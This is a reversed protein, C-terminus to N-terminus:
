YCMPLHAVRMLDPHHNSEVRLLWFRWLGLSNPSLVVFTSQTPEVGVIAAMKEVGLSNPAIGGFSQLPREVRGTSAVKGTLVLYRTADKTLIVPLRLDKSQCWNARCAYIAIREGQLRSIRRALRRSPEM